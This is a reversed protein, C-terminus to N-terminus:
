ISTGLAMSQWVRAVGKILADDISYISLVAVVNNIKVKFMSFEQGLELSYLGNHCSMHVFCVYYILRAM